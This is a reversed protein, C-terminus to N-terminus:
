INSRMEQESNNEQFHVQLRELIIANERCLKSRCSLLKLAEWTASATFFKSALAPSTLFAPEIGPNPLDGSYSIAVWDLIGNWPDQFIGHVSSGPPSCDVPNCLTPCSQPSKAHMCSLLKRTNDTFKEGKGRRILTIKTLEALCSGSDDKAIKLLCPVSDM